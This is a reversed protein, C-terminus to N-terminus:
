PEPHCRKCRCCDPLHVAKVLRGKLHIAWYRNGKVGRYERWANILAEENDLFLPVKGQGLKEGPQFAAGTELPWLEVVSPSFGSAVSADILWDLPM